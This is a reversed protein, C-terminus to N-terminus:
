IFYRSFFSQVAFTDHGFHGVMLVVRRVLARITSVRSQGLGAWINAKLRFDKGAPGPVYKKRSYLVRERQFICFGNEDIESRSGSLFLSFQAQFSGDLLVQFILTQFVHQLIRFTAVRFGRVFHFHRFFGELEFYGGFATRRGGATFTIGSRPFSAPFAPLMQVLAIDASHHLLLAFQFRRCATEIM